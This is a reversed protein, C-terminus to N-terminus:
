GGSWDVRRTAFLAATLALFGVIAGALLAVDESRLILYLLAFLLAFGAAAITGSRRSGLTLGVFGALVVITSGAALFYALAFGIQEALALLLVFFFVEVLGILAYQVVHVRKRSLVELVFILGFISAVFMLAYKLARGVLTYHDVPDAFGVGIRREGGLPSVGGDALWSQPTSRVLSPVHWTAQFGSDGISRDSPLMGVQFSPHRWDSSLALTTSKGVPVFTLAESGRLRLELRFSTGSALAPGSGGTLDAPLAAELSPSYVAPRDGLGPMLELPETRDGVTLSVVEIGTIDGIGIALRAGSWDVSRIASSLRTPDLAGFRGTLVIDATYINATFISLARTETNAKAEIDVVEPLFVAHSRVLRSERRGDVDAITELSLPVILAPAGITQRGGWEGAITALVEDRRGAREDTLAWVMFIPLGLLVTLVAIAVFKATPSRWFTSRALQRAAAAAGPDTVFSM